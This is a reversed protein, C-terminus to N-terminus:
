FPKVVALIIIGVLLLVPAENFVRYWRASHRNSGEAFQRLLRFCFLHYVILVAVLIMKIRLWGMNLYGPAAILMSAGFALALVAGLSMMMYLRREMVKFRELGASETTDAHYVFLRPLYFIGAFWTIVGFIHFAKLWLM